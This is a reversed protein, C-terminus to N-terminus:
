CCVFVFNEILFLGVILFWFFEKMWCFMIIKNLDWMENWDYIGGFFVYVGFWKLM